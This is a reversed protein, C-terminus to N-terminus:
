SEALPNGSRRHVQRAQRTFHSLDLALSQLPSRRRGRTGSVERHVYSDITAASSIKAKLTCAMLVLKVVERRRCRRLAVRNRREDLGLLEEGVSNAAASAIRFLRREIRLRDRFRLAGADSHLFAALLELQVMDQTM